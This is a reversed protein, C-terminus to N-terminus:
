GNSACAANSQTLSQIYSGGLTFPFATRTMMGTRRFKLSSSHRLLPVVVANVAQDLLQLGNPATHDLGFLTVDSYSALRM